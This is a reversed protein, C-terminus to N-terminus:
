TGDFNYGLLTKLTSYQGKSKLFKIKSIPDDKNTINSAFVDHIGTMFATAVLYLQEQSTPIVVSMFDDMYVELRYRLMTPTDSTKPLKSAEADGCMHHTFKHPPLSGVPTNTYVEAIDRATKSTLCFYPPSEVWGMQLSTSVVLRIPNGEPQPLVYTFNWQKGDECCMWWFRDKVDCKAMFYNVDKDDEAKAFAHIICSLAHELQDLAGKPAMKSMTDNVSPLIDRNSLRLKLSLDLILRLGRNKHTIVSVPSIYLQTPPNDKISDWNVVTAQGVAVNEAVEKAFHQLADRSLAQKHPGREVAERM